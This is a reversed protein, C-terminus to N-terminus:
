ILDSKKKPVNETKASRLSKFVTKHKAATWANELKQTVMLESAAGLVAQWESRSAGAHEQEVRLREVRCEKMLDLADKVLRNADAKILNGANLKM